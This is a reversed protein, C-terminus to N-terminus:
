IRVSEQIPSVPVRIYLSYGNDLKSSLMVYNMANKEDVLRTIRMKDNSFIISNKQKKMFAQNILENIKEITNQFSQDSSFMAMSQGNEILIDFDNKSSIRKLAEELEEASMDGVELMEYYRNINNYAEKITKVKTYLYFSELVVSNIIILFLVIIIVVICLSLFLKVRVSKLKDKLKEM